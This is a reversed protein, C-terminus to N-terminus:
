GEQGCLNSGAATAIATIASNPTFRELTITGGGANLRIGKGVVAAAGSLDLYIVNVSDNCLVLFERSDNAPLVATSSTGVSINFAASPTRTTFPAPEIM